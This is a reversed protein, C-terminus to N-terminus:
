VTPPGRTEFATYVSTCAYTYAVAVFSNFEIPCYINFTAHSDDADKTLQYECIFCRNDAFAQHVDAFGAKKTCNEKQAALLKKQPHYHCLQVTTVAFLVLLM